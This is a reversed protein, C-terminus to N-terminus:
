SDYTWKRKKEAVKFNPLHIISYTVSNHKLNNLIYITFCLEMFYQLDGIGRSTVNTKKWLARDHNQVHMRLDHITYNGSM